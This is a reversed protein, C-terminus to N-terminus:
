SHRVSSQEKCSPERSPSPRCAVVSAELHGGEIISVDGRDEAEVSGSSNM